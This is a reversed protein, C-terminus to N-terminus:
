RPLRVKGRERFYEPGSFNQHVSWAMEFAPAGIKPIMPFKYNTHFYVDDDIVKFKYCSRNSSIAEEGYLNWCFVLSSAQWIILADELIEFDSPNSIQLEEGGIFKVILTQEHYSVSDLMVIGDPRGGFWCGYFALSGGSKEPPLRVFAKHIDKISM